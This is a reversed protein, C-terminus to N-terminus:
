VIYKENDSDLDIHLQYSFDCETNADRSVIVIKPEIAPVELESLLQILNQVTIVEKGLM